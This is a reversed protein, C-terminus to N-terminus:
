EEEEEAWINRFELDELPKKEKVDEVNQEKAGVFDNSHGALLSEIQTVEVETQPKIYLKKM